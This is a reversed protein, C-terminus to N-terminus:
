SYISSHHHARDQGNCTVQSQEETPATSIIGATSVLPFATACKSNHENPHHPVTSLPFKRCSGKHCQSCLNRSRAPQTFQAGHIHESASQEEAKRWWIKPKVTSKEGHFDLKHPAANPRWSSCSASLTFHEPRPLLFPCFTSLSRNERTSTLRSNSKCQWPLPCLTKVYNKEKWRLGHFFPFVILQEKEVGVM